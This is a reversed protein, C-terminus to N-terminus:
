KWSSRYFGFRQCFEAAPADIRLTRKHFPDHYALSVARLALSALPRNGTAPQRNDSVPGYLVDGLVPHGSEALHVRIQHTRGTLPRAEVLTSDRNTQLVRFLTEAEKGRRRDAKMRGAEDRRPALKLRCVWDQQKPLGQVVALYIKEVRRTAFLRSYARAAGPNKVLLLVGSTDADLRHVFRLFKLNRSRAWFDGGKVGSILALHLNRSTRDWSEPALIWGAPKDIAIVARDEYLIPIITGDPLEIAKPRAM